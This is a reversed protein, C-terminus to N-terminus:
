DIWPYVVGTPDTQEQYYCQFWANSGGTM